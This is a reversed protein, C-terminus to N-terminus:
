FGQLCLGQWWKLGFSWASNACDHLPSLRQGWIASSFSKFLQLTLRHGMPCNQKLQFRIFRVWPYHQTLCDISLRLCLHYLFKGISLSYLLPLLKNLGNLISDLPVALSNGLFSNCLWPSLNSNKCPFSSMHFPRLQCIHIDYANELIDLEENIKWFCTCQLWLEM